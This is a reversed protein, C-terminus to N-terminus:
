GNVLRRLDDLTRLQKLKSWLNPDNQYKYALFTGVYADEVLGYLGLELSLSDNEKAYRKIIKEVGKKSIIEIEKEAGQQSIFIAEVTRAVCEDLFKHRLIRIRYEQFLLDQKMTKRPMNKITESYNVGLGSNNEFLYHALEHVLTKAVEAMSDTALSIEGTSVIIKGHVKLEEFSVMKVDLDEPFPEGFFREYFPRIVPVVERWDKVQETSLTEDIM